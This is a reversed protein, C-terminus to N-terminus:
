RRAFDHRRQLRDGLQSALRFGAEGGLAYGIRKLMERHRNTQRGYSVTLNPFRETFIKRHCDRRDAISVGPACTLAFAPVRGPSISSPEAMSATFM